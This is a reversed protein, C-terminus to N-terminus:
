GDDKQRVGDDADDDIDDDDDDDGEGDDGHGTKTMSLTLSRYMYASSLKIFAVQSTQASFQEFWNLIAM